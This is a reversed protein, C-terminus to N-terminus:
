VRGTTNNNVTDYLIALRSNKYRAPESRSLYEISLLGALTLWQLSAEDHRYSRERFSEQMFALDVVRLLKIKRNGLRYADKYISQLPCLNIVMPVTTLEAAFKAISTWAGTLYREERSLPMSVSRQQLKVILKNKNRLYM